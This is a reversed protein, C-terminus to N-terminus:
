NSKKIFDEVFAQPTMRPYGVIRNLEKGDSNLLVVTPMGRVGYKQSLQNNYNQQQASLKNEARRPFDAKVLLINKQAYDKFEKTDFIDRDLMKCPMCWDSGSFYLLVNKKDKKAASLTNDLNVSWTNQSFLLLSSFAFLATVFIKKFDM